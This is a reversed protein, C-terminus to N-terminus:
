NSRLVLGITNQQTDRTFIADRRNFIANTASCGVAVTFIYGLETPVDCRDYLLSGDVHISHMCLKSVNVVFM